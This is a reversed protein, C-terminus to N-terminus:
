QRRVRTQLTVSIFCSSDPVQIALASPQSRWVEGSPFTANSVCTLYYTGPHALVTTQSEPFFMVDNRTATVPDVLHADYTYSQKTVLTLFSCRFRRTDEAFNVQAETLETEVPFLMDKWRQVFTDSDAPTIHVAVLRNQQEVRSICRQVAEVASELEPSARNQAARIPGAYDVVNGAWEDPPFLRGRERDLLGVPSTANLMASIYYPLAAAYDGKNEARRAKQAESGSMARILIVAVVILIVVLALVAKKMPM